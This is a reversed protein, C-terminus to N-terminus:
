RLGEADVRYHKRQVSVFKGMELCNLRKLLSSFQYYLLPHLLLHCLEIFFKRCALWQVACSLDDLVRVHEFHTRQPVVLCHNLEFM